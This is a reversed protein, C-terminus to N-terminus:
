LVLSNKCRLGSIKIKKFSLNHAKGPQFCTYGPRTMINRTPDYYASLIGTLMFQLGNHLEEGYHYSVYQARAICENSPVPRKKFVCCADLVNIQNVLIDFPYKKNEYTRQIKDFANYSIKSPHKDHYESTFAVIGTLPARMIGKKLIKDNKGLCGRCLYVAKNLAELEAKINDIYLTKKVSFVAVVGEPPVIALEEVLEYVPYRAVDYIIIDLQNSHQDSENNKKRSYDHKGTKTVPRIIFGSFARLEKPLVSNLFSRLLSEIYRGEEAVHSSGKRKDAPLINEILKYQNQLVDAKLNFFGRIRSGPDNYSM